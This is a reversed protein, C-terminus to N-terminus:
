FAMGLHIKLAEETLAVGESSVRGIYKILRLKDITRIQQCKIKSIKKLSPADKLFLSVEFPYVKEGQDTVPLVTITAAHENNIDNSIVVAPRTKKIEAGLSPDLSVLWIEGRKPIRKEMM